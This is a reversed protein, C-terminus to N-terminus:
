NSNHGGTGGDCEGRFRALKNISQREAGHAITEVDSILSTSLDGVSVNDSSGGVVAGQVVGVHEGVSSRRSAHRRVLLVKAGGVEGRASLGSTALLIAIGGGGIAADCDGVGSQVITGIGSSVARGRSLGDYCSEYQSGKCDDSESQELDVRHYTKHKKISGV